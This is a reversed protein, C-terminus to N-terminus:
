GNDLHALAADLLADTAPHREGQPAFAGDLALVAFGHVMSWWAVSAAAGLEGPSTDAIDKGLVVRNLAAFARKGAAVHERDTMDLMGKRWMLGFLGPRSQAFRLYAHAQATLQARRDDGRVTELAEALAVFGETAVATLLGRADKFHHAPAAASVGARRAAGRLSFGEVGTEEIIATAAIILAARLRGHHYPRHSSIKVDNLDHPM